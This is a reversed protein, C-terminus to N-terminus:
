PEPLFWHIYGCSACIHCLASRNAWDLGFFTLGPTNLQASRSHFEDHGCFQCLLLKDGIAVPEPEKSTM